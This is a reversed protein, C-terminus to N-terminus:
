CVEWTCICSSLQVAASESNRKYCPFKQSLINQIKDPKCSTLLAMFRAFINMWFYSLAVCWFEEQIAALKCNVNWTFLCSWVTPEAVYWPSLLRFKSPLLTERFDTSSVKAQDTERLISFLSSRSKTASIETRWPARSLLFSCYPGLCKKVIPTSFFAFLCGQSQATKSPRIWYCTQPNRKGKWTQHTARRCPQVQVCATAKLFSRDSENNPLILKFSCHDSSFTLFTLWVQSCHLREKLRSNRWNWSNLKRDLSNILSRAFSFERVETLYNM